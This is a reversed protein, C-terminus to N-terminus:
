SSPEPVTGSINIINIQFNGMGLSQQLLGTFTGNILPDGRRFQSSMFLPTGLLATLVGAFDWTTVYTIMAPANTLPAILSRGFFLSCIFLDPPLNGLLEYPKLLQGALLRAATSYGMQDIRNNPTVPGTGGNSVMFINGIDNGTRLLTVQGNSAFLDIQGGVPGTLQVGAATTDILFAGAVKAGVIQQLASIPTGSPSVGATGSVTIPQQAATAPMCVGIAAVFAACVFVFSM